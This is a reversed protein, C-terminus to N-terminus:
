SFSLAITGGRRDSQLHQLININGQGVDHGGSCSAYIVIVFNRCKWDINVQIEASDCTCPLRLHRLSENPILTGVTQVFSRSIEPCLMGFLMKEPQEISTKTRCQGDSHGYFPVTLCRFNFTCSFPCPEPRM